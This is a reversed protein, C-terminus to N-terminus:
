GMAEEADNRAMAHALWEIMEVCYKYSDCGTPDPTNCYLSVHPCANSCQGGRVRKIEAVLRANGKTTPKPRKGSAKVGLCDRDCWTLCVDCCGCPACTREHLRSM